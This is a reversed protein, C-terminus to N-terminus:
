PARGQNRETQIEQIVQRVQQETLAWGDKPLRGLLKFKLKQYVNRALDDDGLADAALALALQAPGSGSYGWNFGDAHRRLDFRPDLPRPQKGQQHVTVRGEGATDHEGPLRYATYTKMPPFAAAFRGARFDRDLQMVNSFRYGAVDPCVQGTVDLFMEVDDPSFGDYGGAEFLIGYGPRGNLKYLEYCVGREGAACVGSARKATVLSGLQIPPLTQSM